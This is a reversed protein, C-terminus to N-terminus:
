IVKGILYGILIGIAFLLTALRAGIVEKINGQKVKILGVSVALLSVLTTIPWLLIKALLPGVWPIAGTITVIYPLALGFIQTILGYLLIIAASIRKPFHGIISVIIFTLLIIWLLILKWYKKVKKRTVKM